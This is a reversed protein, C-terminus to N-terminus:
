GVSCPWPHSAVDERVSHQTRLGSLWLTSEGRGRIVHQHSRTSFSYVTHTTVPNAGSFDQGGFVKSMVEHSAALLILPPSNTNHHPQYIRSLIKVKGSELLTVKPKIVGVQKSM